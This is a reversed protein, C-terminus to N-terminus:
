HPRDAPASAEGVVLLALDPLQDRRRFSSVADLRYSILHQPLERVIAGLVQQGDVGVVYGTIQVEGLRGRHGFQHHM